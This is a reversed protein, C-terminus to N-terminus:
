APFARAFRGNLSRELTIIRGDPLTFQQTGDIKGIPILQEALRAALRRGESPDAVLPPDLRIEQGTFVHLGRSSLGGDLDSRFGVFLDVPFRGGEEWNALADGFADPFHFTAGDSWGYGVTGPLERGLALAMRCLTKLISANMVPGSLHPGPSLALAGFSEPERIPDSDARPYTTSAANREAAAPTVFGTLDASVGSGVVEIFGPDVDRDDGSQAGDPSSSRDISLSVGDAAQLADRVTEASPVRNAAFHILLAGSSRVTNRAASDNDSRGGDM